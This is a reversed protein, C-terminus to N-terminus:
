RGITYQFVADREVRAMPPCDVYSLANADMTVREWELGEERKLENVGDGRALFWLM